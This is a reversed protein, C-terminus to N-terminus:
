IFGWRHAHPFCDPRQHLNDNNRIYYIVSDFLAKSKTQKNTYKHQGPRFSSKTDTVRLDAQATPIPGEWRYTSLYQLWVKKKFIISHVNM